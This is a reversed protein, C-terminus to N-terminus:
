SITSASSCGPLTAAGPAFLATTADADRREFAEGLATLWANFAQIDMGNPAPAPTRRVASVLVM